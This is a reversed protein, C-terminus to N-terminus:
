INSPNANVVTLYKCVSSFTTIKDSRAVSTRSQTFLPCSSAVGSSTSFSHYITGPVKSFKMSFKWFIFQFSM